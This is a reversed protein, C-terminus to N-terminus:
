RNKMMWGSAFEILNRQRMLTAMASGIKGIKCKGTLEFEKGIRVFDESQTNIDQYEAWVRQGDRFVPAYNKVNIKGKFETLYEALHL